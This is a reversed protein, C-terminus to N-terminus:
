FEQLFHQADWELTDESGIAFEEHESVLCVEQKPHDAWHKAKFISLPLIFLM